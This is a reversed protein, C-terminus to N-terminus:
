RAVSARAAIACGQLQMGLYHDPLSRPTALLTQLVQDTFKQARVQLELTSTM